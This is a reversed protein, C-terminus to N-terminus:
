PLHLAHRSDRALLERAYLYPTSVIAKGCGVACALTGSVIKIRLQPPALYADTAALIETSRKSGVNGCQRLPYSGLVM